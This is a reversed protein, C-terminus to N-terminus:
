AVYGRGGLIVSLTATNIQNWPLVAEYGGSMYAASDVYMTTNGDNLYGYLAVWHLIERDRPHNNLRYTANSEWANAALHWGRDVDYIVDYKLLNTQDPTPWNDISKVEYWGTNLKDNLVSQVPNRGWSRWPTGAELTTGLEEAAALQGIGAGRANLIMSVMAPGCWFSTEQQQWNINVRGAAAQASVGKNKMKQQYYLEAAKNKKTIRAQEAASPLWKAERDIAAKHAAIAAGEGNRTNLEYLARGDDAPSPTRASTQAAAVSPTLALLASLSVVTAVAYRRLNRRM